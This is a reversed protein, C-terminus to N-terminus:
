SEEDVVEFIQSLTAATSFSGIVLPIFEGIALPIAIPTATRIIM